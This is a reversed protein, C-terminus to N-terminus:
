PFMCEELQSAASPGEGSKFVVYLQMDDVYQHYSINHKHAIKGIPSTYMPFRFPGFLSDQPVGYLLLHKKSNAGNFSVFQHQNSFYTKVWELTSGIVDFCRELRNMMIMHDM